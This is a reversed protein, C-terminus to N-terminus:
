HSINCYSPVCKMHVDQIVPDGLYPVTQFDRVVPEALKDSGQKKVVWCDATTVYPYVLM